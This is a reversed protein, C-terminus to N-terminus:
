RRAKRVRLTYSDRSSTWVSGSAPRFTVQVRYRGPKRLQPGRVTVRGGAYGVSRSASFGGTVRTYVLRLRGQPLGNGATRVVARTRPRNGARVQHAGGADTSTAVTGPYPDALAPAGAVGLGTGALALGLLAIAVNRM